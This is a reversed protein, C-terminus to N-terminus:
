TTIRKKTLKNVIYNLSRCGSLFISSTNRKFFFMAFTMTRSRKSVEATTQAGNARAVSAVVVAEGGHTSGAAGAAGEAGEVGVVVVVVFGVVVVVVVVAVVVLIGITSPAVYWVTMLPSVM